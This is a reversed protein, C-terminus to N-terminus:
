LKIKTISKFKIDELNINKYASDREPCNYALQREGFSSLILEYNHRQLYSRLIDSRIYTLERRYGRTSDVYSVAAMKEEKDNYSWEHPNLRLACEKAFAPDLLVGSGCQNESSHYGEWCMRCVFIRCQVALGRVGLSINWAAQSLRPIADDEFDDTRWWQMSWPNEGHFAYYFQPKDVRIEEGAKIIKRVFEKPIAVANAFKFFRRGRPEEEEIYADVLIWDGQNGELTKPMHLYSLDPEYGGVLWRRMDRESGRIQIKREIPVPKPSLPFTPDLGIESWRNYAYVRKELYGRLEYFAIKAYKRAFKHIGDLGENRYFYASREISDDVDRFIDDRFGLDYIRQGLIDVTEKYEKNNTDYESKGLLWPIEKYIFDWEHNLANHVAGIHEPNVQNPNVFPSKLIKAVRGKRAGLVLCQLNVLYDLICANSTILDGEKSLFRGRMQAVFKEVEGRAIIRWGNREHYMATAYAVALLREVVFSDNTAAGEEILRLIECPYVEGMECLIRTARDRLCGVNSVLLWKLWTAFPLVCEQRISRVREPSYYQVRNWLEARNHYLWVGWTRDRDVMSMDCGLLTELLLGNGIINPVGARMTIRGFISRAFVADEHAAGAIEDVVEDSVVNDPMKLCLGLVIKKHEYPFNTLIDGKPNKKLWMPVFSAIIDGNLPHLNWQEQNIEGLTSLYKAIIYGGLRDYMPAIVGAESKVLHYKNVVCEDVLRVSWRSLRDVYRGDNAAADFEEIDVERCKGEWLKKGLLDLVRDFDYKRFRRSVAELWLRYVDDESLISIVDDQGDRRKMSLRRAECYMKLFLPTQNLSLAREIEKTTIGYEKSYKATIESFAKDYSSIAKEESNEPLFMENRDCQNGSAFDNRSRDVRYTVIVKVHPYNRQIKRSLRALIDRWDMPRESENLGDIVFPIIRGAKCGAEELCGLLEDENTFFRGAIDFGRIFDAFHEGKCLYKALMLCGAPRGIELCPSALSIALHTKGFGAEAAIGIVPVNRIRNIDDITIILRSLLAAVNQLYFSSRGLALPNYRILQIISKRLAATKKRLNNYSNVIVDGTSIEQALKHFSEVSVKISALLGAPLRQRYKSINSILNQLESGLDDMMTWQNPDLLCRRVEHESKSQVHLTPHWRSMIPSVADNLGDALERDNLAYLGFYSNILTNRPIIKSLSLIMDMDWFEIRRISHASRRMQRIKKIDGKPLPEPTWLIWTEIEPYHKRTKNYSEKIQTLESKNLKARGLLRFYKCQWGVCTGQQGLVPHAEALRVLFEVGAQNKYGVFESCGGFALRVLSRCLAEFDRYKDGSKLEFANWDIKDSSIKM